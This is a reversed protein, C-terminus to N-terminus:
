RLREIYDKMTLQVLTDINEQKISFDINATYLATSVLPSCFVRSNFYVLKNDRFIIVALELHINKSFGGDGGVGGTSTILINRHHLYNYNIIPILTYGKSDTSLSRLKDIDFLRYKLKEYAIFSKECYSKVEEVKFSIPLKIFSNLFVKLISDKNIKLFSKRLGGSNGCIIADRVVISHNKSYTESVIHFRRNTKRYDACSNILLSLLFVIIIPRM